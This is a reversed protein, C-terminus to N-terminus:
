YFSVSTKRLLKRIAWYDPITKAVLAWFRKSHNFEGLHCLEHVIIYDAFNLSLLAIKYNFNLSGKKSCSGWLTKQNKISIRRYKFGYINNFHEIRDKALLFAKEKHEVFDKQREGKTKLQRGPFQKFYDLKDIVWQSKQTIFQEIASDSMRHPATVVVSGDCFVALRLRRARKSKKLTYEIEKECLRKKSIPM